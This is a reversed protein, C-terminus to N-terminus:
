ANFKMWGRDDERRAGLATVYERFVNYHSSVSGAMQYREVYRTLGVNQVATYILIPAKFGHDRIFKM